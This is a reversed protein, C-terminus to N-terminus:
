SPSPAWFPDGNSACDPNTCTTSAEADASSRGELTLVILQHGCIRCTGQASGEDGADSQDM